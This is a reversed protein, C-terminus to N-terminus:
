REERMRRRTVLLVAAVLVLMAGVVYFVTTGMGGTEPLTSGKTNEVTMNIVNPASSTPADVHVLGSNTNKNVGWTNGNSVYSITLDVDEMTNYGAPTKTESLTYKGASLGTFTIRGSEDVTKTIKDGTANAVLVETSTVKRVYKKTTSAYSDETDPVPAKTTYGGSTLKYYIADDSTSETYTEEKEVRVRTLDGAASSLTFEAGTLSIGDDGVKNLVLVSTYVTVSREKTSGTTNEPDNPNDKDEPDDADGTGTAVPNNSYELYASNNESYTSNAFATDNLTASYVVTLDTLGAAKNIFDKFVIKLEGNSCTATYDNSSYLNDDSITTGKYIKISDVVGDDSFGASLTDHIVYQYHKYGAMNPVTTTIKFEVVDGIGADAAVADNSQSEVKNTIPNTVKSIVKNLLPRSNAKSAVTEGRVVQMMWRTYVDQPHDADVSECIMYYGRPLDTLKYSYTTVKDVTTSTNTNVSKYPDVNKLVEGIVNAVAEVNAAKSDGKFEDGQLIKAVDAATSQTVDDKTEPVLKSFYSGVTADKQLGDILAKVKDATIQAGWEINTLTKSSSDYSGTFIQYADYKRYDESSTITISGTDTAAFVMSGMSLSLVLAMIVCLLKKFNKFKM